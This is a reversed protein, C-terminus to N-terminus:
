ETDASVVEVILKSDDVLEEVLSPLTELLNVLQQEALATASESNKVLKSISIVINQTAIVAM